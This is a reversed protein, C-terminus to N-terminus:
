DLGAEALDSVIELAKKSQQKMNEGYDGHSLLALRVDDRTNTAPFFEIFGLVRRVTMSRKCVPCTAKM